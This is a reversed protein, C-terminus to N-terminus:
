GGSGPKVFKFMFQDTRGRISPDFVAATHPDGPNKLADSEGALKFGAAIIEAKAAAPDIRHLTNTDRLGSGPAAAHDIVLFTGGPKLAALVAANFKAIDPAPGGNFPNHLDHYNQATWVMDVPQPTSFAPQILLTVNAYAPDAAIAKVGEVGKPFATAFVQPVYAYVHGTPGVAKSLIRTFYGGGPLFDVVTQGPKVGAFALSEAPHRFADHDTDAKPRGPDAVAAAINAPITSTEAIAAGALLLGAALAAMLSFPKM